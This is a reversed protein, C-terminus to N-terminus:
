RAAVVKFKFCDRNARKGRKRLEEDFVFFFDSPIGGRAKWNSQGPASVGTLEQAGSPGGVAEIHEDITSLM